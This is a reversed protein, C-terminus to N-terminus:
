LRNSETVSYEKEHDGQVPQHSMKRLITTGNGAARDVCTRIVFRTREQEAACFLEFIDSERDGAHVCREPESLLQSSQRVNEIWRYSEKREIPLRTMNVKGRLARTGKFKKRTWFKVAALGIPLGDPTVVLSSHMLLGCVTVPSGQRTHTISLKGINEPRERQFSFETTDHLM